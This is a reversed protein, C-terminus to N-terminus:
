VFRKRVVGAIGLIGTGLLAISSPEPTVASPTVVASLTGSFPRTPGAIDGTVPSGNYTALNTTPLYFDLVDTAGDELFFYYDPGQYGENHVQTYYAGAELVKASSVAGTTADITVTGSLTSAPSFAAAPAYASLSFVNYTDARASLSVVSLTAAALLALRM